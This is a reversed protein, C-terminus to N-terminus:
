IWSLQAKQYNYKESFHSVHCEHRLFPPPPDLGEYFTEAAM